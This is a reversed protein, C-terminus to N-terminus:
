AGVAEVSQRAIGLTTGSTAQETVGDQEIPLFANATPSTSAGVEILVVAAANAVALANAGANVNVGINVNVLLTCTVVGMSLQNYGYGRNITNISVLRPSDYM